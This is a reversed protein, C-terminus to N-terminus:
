RAGRSALWQRLKASLLIIALCALGGLVVVVWGMLEEALSGPRVNPFLHYAYLSGAIIVAIMVITALSSIVIASLPARGRTGDAPTEGTQKAKKDQM